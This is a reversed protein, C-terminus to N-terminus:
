GKSAGERIRKKQRGGQLDEKLFLMYHFLGKDILPKEHVMRLFSVDTIAPDFRLFSM